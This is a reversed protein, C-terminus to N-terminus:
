ILHVVAVFTCFNNQCIVCFYIKMFILNKEKIFFINNPVKCISFM